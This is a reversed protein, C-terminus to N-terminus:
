KKREVFYHEKTPPWGIIITVMFCVKESSVKQAAKWCKCINVAEQLSIPPLFRLQAVWLFLSIDGLSHLMEYFTHPSVYTLCKFQQVYLVSLPPIARSPWVTMDMLNDYFEPDISVFTTIFGSKHDRTLFTHSEYKVNVGLPVRRDLPLTKIGM